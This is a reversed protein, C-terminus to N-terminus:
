TAMVFSVNFCTEEEVPKVCESADGPRTGGGLKEGELEQKRGCEPCFKLQKQTDLLTVRHSCWICCWNMSGSMTKSRRVNCRLHLKVALALAWGKTNVRHAHGFIPSVIGSEPISDPISDPVTHRDKGM